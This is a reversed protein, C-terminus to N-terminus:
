ILRGATGLGDGGVRVRRFRLGAFRHLGGPDVRRPFPRGALRRRPVVAQPRQGSALDTGLGVTVVSRGDTSVQLELADGAYHHWIETADVRHWHSREGARLLFYIATGSARTDPRSPDVPARWTEVYMGGEPHPQLGLLEAIEDAHM